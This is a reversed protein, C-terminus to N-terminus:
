TSGAPCFNLCLLSYMPVAACILQTCSSLLTKPVFNNIHWKESQVSSFFETRTERWYSFIDREQPRTAFSCLIHPAHGWIIHMSQSTCFMEAFLQENRNLTPANLTGELNLIIRAFWGCHDNCRSYSSAADRDIGSRHLGSLVFPCCSAAM